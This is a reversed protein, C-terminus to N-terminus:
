YALYLNESVRQCCLSIPHGFCPSNLCHLFRLYRRHHYLPDDGQGLREVVKESQGFVEQNKFAQRVSQSHIAPGGGAKVQRVCSDFTKNSVGAKRLRESPM